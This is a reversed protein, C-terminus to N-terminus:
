EVKAERIGNKVEYVLSGNEVVFYPTILFGNQDVRVYSALSMILGINMGEPTEIPCIRGYYSSNIDRIGLNPDERSIGGPGMASIRRKNTLESLPNQQDIFQTLQYSNFFERVIQQLPKTNIISKVTITKGKKTAVFDTAEIDDFNNQANAAATATAQDKPTQLNESPLSASSSAIALKERIFKDVRIMGVNMKGYLLEGVLKLRKNGLHDVEDYQGVGYNLNIVYSIFSIIDSMTLNIVDPKVTTGIIRLEKQESSTKPAHVYISNVTNDVVIGSKVKAKSGPIFIPDYTSSVKIRDDKIAGIIADVEKKFLKSDANVLTHGSTDVIPRSLVQDFLRENVEMKQNIKYRGALSMNFTNTNFFHYWIITQFCFEEQDNIREALNDLTKQSINLGEVLACAAQEVIIIDLYKQQEVKLQNMEAELKTIVANDKNDKKAREDVLKSELEEIKDTVEKYDFLAVRIKYDPTLIKKRIEAKTKIKKLDNMMDVIQPFDFVETENYKENKYSNTILEEDGYIEDIIKKTYGLAKLFQTIPALMSQNGLVDRLMIQIYKNPKNHKDKAEEKQVYISFMTGKIPLVECILGELIRRRSNSLKLQAKHLIYSGPSRVIQSIIFKETGNILFTGRKTM